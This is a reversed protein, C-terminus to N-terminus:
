KFILECFIFCLLIKTYCVSLYSAKNGPLSSSVLNEVPEATSSTRDALLSFPSKPSARMVGCEVKINSESPHSLEEGLDCATPTLESPSELALKPVANIHDVCQISVFKDDVDLIREVQLYCSPFVEGRALDEFLDVGGKGAIRDRYKRIASRATTGVLSILDDEKEWSLHLFSAHMWKILFKEVKMEHLSLFNCLLCRTKLSMRDEDIRVSHFDILLCVHALAYRELHRTMISMILSSTMISSSVLIDMLYVIFFIRSEHSLSCRNGSLDM